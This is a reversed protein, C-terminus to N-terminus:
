VERHFYAHSDGHVMPLNPLLLPFPWCAAQDQLTSSPAVKPGAQCFQTKGESADNHPAAPSPLSVLFSSVVGHCVREVLLQNPSAIPGFSLAPAATCPHPASWTWSQEMARLNM